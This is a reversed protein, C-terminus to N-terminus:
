AAGQEKAEAIIRWPGLQGCNVCKGPAPRLVEVFGCSLCEFAMTASKGTQYKQAEALNEFPNLCPNGCHPCGELGAPECSIKNCEACYHGLIPAPGETVTADEIQATEPASTASATAAPEEDEAEDQTQSIKSTVKVTTSAPTRHDLKLQQLAKKVVKDSAAAILDDYAGSNFKMLEFPPREILNQVGEFISPLDYDYSSTSETAVYVRDGCVFGDKGLPLLLEAQAEKLQKEAKEAIKRIASIKELHEIIAPLNEPKKEIGVVVPTETLAKQYVECKAALTCCYCLKNLKKPFDKRKRFEDVRAKIYYFASTLNNKDWYRKPSKGGQDLYFFRTQIVTEIGQEEYIQRLYEYKMWSVLAYVATQLDDADSWGTKWDIIRIVHKKIAAFDFIEEVRDGNENLGFRDAYDIAGRLGWDKGIPVEFFKNGYYEAEGDDSQICVINERNLKLWDTDANVLTKFCKDARELYEATLPLGLKGAETAFTEDCDGGRILSTIGADVAKGFKLHDSDEFPENKRRFPCLSDQILKTASLFEM